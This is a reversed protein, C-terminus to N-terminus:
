EDALVVRIMANAGFPLLENWDPVSYSRGTPTGLDVGLWPYNDADTQLYGVRFDATVRLALRSLDIVFWGSETPTTEIPAILDNGLTDWVHVEIPAPTGRIGSVFLRVSQLTAGEAPTTFRVAYGAGALAYGRGAESTGDDYALELGADVALARQTLIRVMACAGEPLLPTWQPVSFSRDSTSTTDIGLWPHNDVSTQLYGAYVDATLVLGASSVDVDFWGEANPAALVPTLLDKKEADWVHIEVPALDGHLGKVYLSVRLLTDGPEVPTFRVAFGYGVESVARGAEAAGDDYLIQTADALVCQHPIAAAFCVLLPPVWWGLVKAREM